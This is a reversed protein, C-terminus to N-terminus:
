LHAYTKIVKDTAMALQKTTKLDPASMLAYGTACKSCNASPFPCLTPAKPIAKQILLDCDFDFPEGGAVPVKYKNIEETEPGM